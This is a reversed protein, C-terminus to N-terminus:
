FWPNYIDVMSALKNSNTAMSILSTVTQMLQTPKEAEKLDKSRINENSVVGYFLFNCVQNREYKCSMLEAKKVISEVNLAVQNRFPQDIVPYTVHKTFFWTM